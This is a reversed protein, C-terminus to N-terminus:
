SGCAADMRRLWDQFYQGVGRRMAGKDGDDLLAAGMNRRAGTFRGSPAIPVSPLAPAPPPVTGPIGGAAGDDPAAAPADAPPASDPVDPVWPPVMPVGSPSGNSSQSTGM